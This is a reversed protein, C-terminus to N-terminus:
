TTWLHNRHALVDAVDAVLADVQADTIALSLAMFGRRAMYHGRELLDLFLIEKLRDDAGALDAPSAIPATTAHVNLMSGIGTVSFPAGAAAFTAALADRLRDGRDNLANLVDPTLVQTLGAIGAAMTLVNNNFTGAHALAGPASPDFRSMLDRRGGFAGFSVGGGFYKGLSTLDPTFGHRAQLGGPSLRSTMVEDAILIVGHAATRERLTAIFEPSGPICGASGMMPEFLVAALDSAHEEILRAAGETDNYNAVVFPYPANTPAGGNAFAMLGGHYAGHFVLIKSRGTAVRALAVAMLNAETGSNTFRMLEMSPVRGRILTALEVEFRNHAGFSLGDALVDTIAQRIVPNSHGYLGATYEGLFDVYRHGDVDELVSDWGRAVRFPFPSFWLVTRTNGGPLVDAAAAQIAASKPRRTAYRARVEQVVADVSATDISVVSM